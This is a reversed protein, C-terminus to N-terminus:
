KLISNLIDGSRNEMFFINSLVIERAQSVAREDGGVKNKEFFEDMQSYLM